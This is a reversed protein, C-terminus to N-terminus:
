DPTQDAIKGDINRVLTDISGLRTYIDRVKDDINDVRSDNIASTMSSEDISATVQINDTNSEIDSLLENSDGILGNTTSLRSDISSLTTNGSGINTGITTLNTNVDVLEKVVSTASAGSGMSLAELIGAQSDNIGSIGAKVSDLDTNIGGLNMNIDALKSLVTIPTQGSDDYLASKIIGLSENQEKILQAIGKTVQQGDETVTVFMANQLMEFMLAFISKEYESSGDQVTVILGKALTDSIAKTNANGAMSVNNNTVTATGINKAISTLEEDRKKDGGKSGSLADAIQKLYPLLANM